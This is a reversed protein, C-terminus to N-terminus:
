RGCVSCRYGPKFLQRLGLWLGLTCVVLLLDGCGMATVHRDHRTQKRCTKCYKSKIQTRQM